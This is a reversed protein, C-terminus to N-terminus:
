AGTGTRDDALLSLYVEELRRAGADASHWKVAFERSRRGIDRRREPSEVLDRLTEYATEPTASVVPIEDVYEPIERRMSELWEPRLYCIVPKGLMLAERVNAGFFGVTLMDVVVDAQAQYYRVAKNPVDNFFIMEVDHGERKLRDVVPVWVHTSKLNVGGSSTRVDFNGVSHYIKVTSSAFPLRYNTPILLDPSWFSPDLCYFEPVEHVRPDDNYDARNGGITIQYDALSNRLKGWALNKQDSCVAPVHQWPCENCVPEDGWASFSTQSVGDLCGNNSYVIKKGSRKLLKVEASEGFRSFARQLSPGLHLCHANAFHFIDYDRLARAYFKLQRATDGPHGHRFQFDQGHFFPSQADDPPLWNLVDARWGRERLARSLYWGHYYCQGAFLVRGVPQADAATM